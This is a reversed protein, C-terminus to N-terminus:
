IGTRGRCRGLICNWCCFQLLPKNNESGKRPGRKSGSATQRGPLLNILRHYLYTCADNQSLHHQMTTRFETSGYTHHQLRSDTKESPHGHVAARRREQQLERNQELTISGLRIGLPIEEGTAQFLLSSKLFVQRIWGTLLLGPLVPGELSVKSQQSFLTDRLLFGESLSHHLRLQPVSSTAAPKLRPTPDHSASLSLGSPIQATIERGLGLDPNEPHRQLPVLPPALPFSCPPLGAHALLTPAPPNQNSPQPVASSLRCRSDEGMPVQDWEQNADGQERALSFSPEGSLSKPGMRRISLPSGVRRLQKTQGPAPQPHTGLPTVGLVWKHRGTIARLSWGSSFFLRVGGRMMCVAAVGIGM